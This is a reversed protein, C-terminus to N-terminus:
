REHIKGTGASGRQAARPLFDRWGNWMKASSRRQWNHWRLMSRRRVFIPKLRTNEHQDPDSQNLKIGNWIRILTKRMNSFWFFINSKKLAIRTLPKPAMIKLIKPLINFYPQFAYLDQDPLIIGIRGSGSVFYQMKFYYPIEIFIITQLDTASFGRVLMLLSRDRFM